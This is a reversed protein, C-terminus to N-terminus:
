SQTKRQLVLKCKVEGGGGLVVCHCHGLAQIAAIFRRRCHGATEMTAEVRAVKSHELWEM